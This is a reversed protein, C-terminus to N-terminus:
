SICVWNKYTFLLFYTAEPSVTESQCTLCILFNLAVCGSGLATCTTFTFLASGSVASSRTEAVIDHLVKLTM